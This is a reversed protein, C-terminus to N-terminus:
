RNEEAVRVSRPLAVLSNGCAFVLDVGSPFRKRKIRWQDTFTASLGSVSLRGAEDIGPGTITLARGDTLSPVQVVVTAGRDPYDPTGQQARDLALDDPGALVVFDANGLTQAARAGTHFRLYAGVEAPFVPDCFLTTEFDCLTLLVAASAPMLAPPPELAAAITCIRGPHAMANMITRFSAQSDLSISRFGAAMTASM